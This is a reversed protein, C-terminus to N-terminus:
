CDQVCCCQRVQPGVSHMPLGQQWGSCEKLSGKSSAVHQPASTAAIHMLLEQKLVSGKYPCQNQWPSLLANRRVVQTCFSQLLFM